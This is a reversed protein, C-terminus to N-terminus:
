DVINDVTPVSHEVEEVVEQYAVGVAAVAAPLMQDMEDM